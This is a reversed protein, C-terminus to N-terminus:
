APPAQALGVAAARGWRRRGRAACPGGGGLPGRPAQRSRSQARAAGVAHAGGALPGFRRACRGGFRRGARAAVLGLGAAPDAAARGAAARGAHAALGAAARGAAARGAHAPGRLIRGLEAIAADADAFRRKPDRELARALWADFGPPIVGQAGLEAARQSAPVMPEFMMETVVQIPTSGSAHASKWYSRGTLAHFAILGLAWVDTAPSIPQGRQAQEPAMWLPSGITQTASVSTADDVIKAIGFDLIKATFRVGSRRPAALFVNEPKLDRHVIGARHAAGLAHGLQELVEALEVVGLRGRRTVYDGLEEGRLLEMALWPLGTDVDVGAGVVEVVHESDVKSGVRAEQVFRERFRADSALGVQMIKLAREKGTSLQEAVYVAGMGGEKLPRLVRFDGAFVTGPSLRAVSM